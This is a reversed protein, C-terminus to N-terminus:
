AIAEQSNTVLQPVSRRVPELFQDLKTVELMQVVLPSAHTIQVQKGKDLALALCPPWVAWGEVTWAEFERWTLPSSTSVTWCYCPAAAFLM